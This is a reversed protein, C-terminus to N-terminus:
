QVVVLADRTGFDNPAYGEAEPDEMWNGDVIFKYRYEGPALQYRKRYSGNKQKTMKGQTPQWDNFSGAVEVVRCTGIPNYVFTIQSKGKRLVM